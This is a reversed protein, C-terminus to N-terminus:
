SFLLVYHKETSAEQVNVNVDRQRRVAYLPGAFDLGTHTFPPDDTVRGGPLDPSPPQKYPIGEHRACVLCKNLVKKVSARGRLIWFRERMTTLTSRVGGHKVSNHVNVVLLEVFPSKSPMLIPNKCGSSLPSNNLRGKCRIVGFEDCFLGFQIMNNTNPLHKIKKVLIAYEKPFATRQVSKIWSTEAESIDRGTLENTDRGQRNDHKIRANRIFRLVYATVRLLRRLSGYREIDMVNGIDDDELTYENATLSHSVVPQRKVMELSADETIDSGQAMPNNPWTDPSQRLFKPGVWWAENSVLEKAELGRSPLDAPNETGPCFRWSEISTLSRIEMVRNRVYQKWARDNKIWCLAATSDVWHITDIEGLIDKVKKAPADGSPPTPSAACGGM